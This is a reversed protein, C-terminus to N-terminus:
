ATERDHERKCDACASDVPKGHPCQMPRDALLGDLEGLMDQIEAGRKSEELESETRAMTIVIRSGM